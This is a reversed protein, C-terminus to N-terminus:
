FEPTVLEVVWDVVDVTIDLCRKVPDLDDPIEISGGTTDVEGAASMRYIKGPEISTIATGTSSSTYVDTYVYAPNGDALLKIIMTPVVNGAFFHYAMPASADKVPAAPTMSLVPDFRDIYWGTNATNNFFNMVDVQSAPNAVRKIHTGEPAAALGSATSFGVTPWYHDFAIDLVDIKSFKPTSSFAVSFGDVEFRSIVPKLSLEAEYIDTLKSEGGIEHSETTGAFELVADAWLILNKQDQQEDISRKLAKFDALSIDGLNAVAFVRTCKPDVYHFEYEKATALAEGTIYGSVVSAGTNDYAEYVTSFAADTLFVKFNNVQVADGANIKDGASGKTMIINELSIKVSKLNTSEPVTDQKNCSVLALAAISASLMLKSLKM